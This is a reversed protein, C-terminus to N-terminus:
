LRLREESLRLAEEMEKRLTIDRIVALVVAGEETQVPSLMIDVPFETGDKRLGFLELGAGMPRLRSEAHYSKRHHLHAGRFREPILLEVRQGALDAQSSGFM